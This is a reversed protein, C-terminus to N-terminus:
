LQNSLITLMNQALQTRDFNVTQKLGAERITQVLEKDRYLKLVAQAMAEPNEPEVVVGSGINQVLETTEGEPLSILLPIGQAMAEFIKSPIVTRFTDLNRLPILALDALSWVKHMDEKPFAEHMIVNTLGLHQRKELLKPREAGDGAFLFVIDSNEKLLYACDLVKDLGHAMGHTGLYAVVFKNHIGLQQALLEDKSNSPSYKSLDVGNLVVFIKSAPVGRSVLNQKFAHTVAVICDARHYLFLELRELLKILLGRKMAGVAVISEPWLDRLEFVFKCRFFCSLLWGSIVTFFQPSTAVLIDPRPQLMGAFFSSFAFSLYDLTRRFFGDNAAIYTKVRIVEIGDTHSKHYWYNQYGLFVQGRPFNPACTIVRVQHGEKVWERTHEYTRTAPANSEPPFNDSLFLIRM